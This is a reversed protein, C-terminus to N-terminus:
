ILFIHQYQDRIGIYYISIRTIHEVLIKEKITTLGSANFSVCPLNLREAYLNCATIERSTARVRGRGAGGPQANYIFRM